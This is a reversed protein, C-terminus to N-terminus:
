SLAVYENDISVDDNSKLENKNVSKLITVMADLVSKDSLIGTHTLKDFKQTTLPTNAENEWVKVWELSRTNVTGDGDGETISPKKDFNGDNWAFSKSTKVGTSYLANVKVGPPTMNSTLDM